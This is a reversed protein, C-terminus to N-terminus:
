VKFDELTKGSALADKLWLPRAGRGAWTKSADDPHRYAAKAPKKAAAKPESTAKGTLEDLSFGLEKAKAKIAALAQTKQKKDHRDIAKEVRLKLSKLEALSLSKLDVKAM